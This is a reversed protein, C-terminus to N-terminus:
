VLRWGAVVVGVLFLLMDFMNVFCLYLVHVCRPHIGTCQGSWGDWVAPVARRCLAGPAGERTCGRPWLGGGGGQGCGGLQAQHAAAHMDVQAAALAQQRATRACPLWQEPDQPNTVQMSVTTCPSPDYHLRLHPSGQQVGVCSAWRDFLPQPDVLPSCTNPLPLLPCACIGDWSSGMGQILHGQIYVFVVSNHQNDLLACLMMPDPM